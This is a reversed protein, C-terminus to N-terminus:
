EYRLAVMPDVRTARRAPIYSAVLAVIVLLTGVGAFTLPDHASVGFLLNALLRTLGLAAVLGIVVGLLAMRGGQRLVLELVEGHKAGLAMRIGIEHVQQTVSYSVVGYIGVSALLLALGAFVALLIMPFRQSAMSQSAIQQMPRVNYVPQDQGTGYVVNKIAPVVTALALPTRVMATLYGYFAPVWRDPLQYFSAYIPPYQSLVDLGLGWHRVHAVVGVIQVTGWYAITITQGLPDRGPFYADAFAKDVVIVPASRTTDERNILRGRLLPIGLTQLYDPGTWYLNVRPAGQISAAQQSGIWFPSLNDDGSLPVLNTFDAAQVGPIQRIREMLQQCAIRTDSPTKTLQPSLGVKFTILNRTDFGPNVDWLHRITRFL